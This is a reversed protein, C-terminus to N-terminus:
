IKSLSMEIKSKLLNITNHIDASSLPMTKSPIELIHILEQQYLIMADKIEVGTDADYLFSIDRLYDPFDDPYELIYEAPTDQLIEYINNNITIRKGISLKEYTFVCDTCSIYPEKKACPTTKVLYMVILVIVVIIFIKM